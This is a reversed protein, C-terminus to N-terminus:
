LPLAEASARNASAKIARTDRLRSAPSWTGRADHEFWPSISMEDDGRVFCDGASRAFNM